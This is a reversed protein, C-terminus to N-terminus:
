EKERRLVTAIIELLVAILIISVTLLRGSGTTITQAIGGVYPVSLVVKGVYDDYAIPNMDKEKNADGKTTFRGMNTNNKVVRHTIISTTDLEEYFAIVDDAQIEEAPVTTKIYVLSGTPIAPEMSGSVVTYMHYGLMKPVTLPLCGIILIVLLVTGLVSCVAAVPSRKHEDRNRKKRM